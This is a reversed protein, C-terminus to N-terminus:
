AGLFFFPAWHGPQGYRAADLPSAEPYVDSLLARIAAADAAALWRQADSLAKAPDAPQRAWAEYFRRTVMLAVPDAVPALTGIVGAAGIQVFGAALSVYQDPDASGLTGTECASLVAARAHGLGTGLLDALRLRGEPGPALQFYGSLPDSIEAHAHCALHVVWPAGTAADARVADMVRRPTADHSIIEAAAFFGAAARLEPSTGRLEAGPDAVGTFRAPLAAGMEAARAQCSRLVVATPAYIVVAQTCLPRLVGAEDPVSAAHLPLVSLPGDPLLVLREPRGAATFVPEILREGVERFLDTLAILDGTRMPGSGHASAWREQWGKVTEGTVDPLRVAQMSIGGVQGAPEQGTRVIIALGPLEPGANDDGNPVHLLYCLPAASAADAIARELAQADDRQAGLAAGIRARLRAIDAHASGISDRLPVGATDGLRRVARGEADHSSLELAELAAVRSLMARAQAALDAHGAEALQDAQEALESRGLSERLLVARGSETLRVAELLAEPQLGGAMAVAYGLKGALGKGVRLSEERSHRFIESGVITGLADLAARGIAIVEQWRGFQLDIDMCLSAADLARALSHSIEAVPEPRAIAPDSMALRLYRKAEEHDGLDDETALQFVVRLRLRRALLQALMSWVYTTDGDAAATLPDAKRAADIAQDLHTLMDEAEIQPGRTQPFTWLLHFEAMIVLIQGRQDDPRDEAAMAALEHLAETRADEDPPDLVRTSIWTLDYLERRATDRDKAPLKEGLDSFCIRRLLTMAEAMDEGRLELIARRFLANALDNYVGPEDRAGRPTQEVAQRFYAIAAHLDAVQGSSAQQFRTLRAYGLARVVDRREPARVRGARLLSELYAIRRDLWAVSAADGGPPPSLRLVTIGRSFYDVLIAALLLALGAALGNLWAPPRIGAFRQVPGSPWMFLVPIASVALAVAVFRWGSFPRGNRFLVAIVISVGTALFGAAVIMYGVVAFGGGGFVALPVGVAFWLVNRGILRGLIYEFGGDKRVRGVPLDLSSPREYDRRAGTERVAV